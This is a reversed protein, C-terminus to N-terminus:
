PSAQREHCAHGDACTGVDRFLANIARYTSGKCDIQGNLIRSVTPQSVGLKDAIARESWGKAAKIERLLTSISKDM